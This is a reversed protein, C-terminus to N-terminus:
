ASRSVLTDSTERALTGAGCKIVSGEAEGDREPDARQCRDSEEDGDSYGHGAQGALAPKPLLRRAPRGLGHRGHDYGHDRGLTRAARGVYDRLTGVRGAKRRIGAHHSQLPQAAHRMIIPSTTWTKSQADFCM